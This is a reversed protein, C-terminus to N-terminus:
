DDSGPKERYVLVDIIAARAQWLEREKEDDPEPSRYWPQSHVKELLDVYSEAKFNQNSVFFGFREQLGEFSKRNVVVFFDPKALILLRTALAPGCYPVNTLDQVLGKV